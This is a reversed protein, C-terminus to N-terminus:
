TRLVSCCIELPLLVGTLVLEFNAMQLDDANSGPISQGSACLAVGLQWSKCACVAAAKPIPSLSPLNGRGTLVAM